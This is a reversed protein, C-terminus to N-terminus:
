EEDQKRARKKQQEDAEEKAGRLLERIAPDDVDVDELGELLQNVYSPDLFGTERPQSEEKQKEEDREQSLAVARALEDDEEEEAQKDSKHAPTTAATLPTEGTEEDEKMSLLIAEALLAEEEENVEEPAEDSPPM